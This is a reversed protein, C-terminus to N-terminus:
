VLELEQALLLFLSSDKEQSHSQAEILSSAHSTIVKKEREKM